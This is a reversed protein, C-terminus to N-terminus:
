GNAPCPQTDKLTKNSPQLPSNADRVCGGGQQDKCKVSTLCQAIISNGQADTKDVCQTQNGTNNTCGFFDTAPSDQQCLNCATGVPCQNCLKIGLPCLISQKQTQPCAGYAADLAVLLLFAFMIRVSSMPRANSM